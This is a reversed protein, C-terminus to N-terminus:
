YQQTTNLHHCDNRQVSKVSLDYIPQYKTFFFFGLFILNLSLTVEKRSRVTDTEIISSILVM